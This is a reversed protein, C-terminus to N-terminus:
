GNHALERSVAREMIVVESAGTVGKVAECAYSLAASYDLSVYIRLGDINRSQRAAILIQEALADAIEAPIHLPAGFPKFQQQAMDHQCVSM